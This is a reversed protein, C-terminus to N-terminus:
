LAAREERLQALKEREAGVVAEPAKAVFGRNALKKEARAIEGDLWARREDIRRSAAEHDIADSRLVAVSGGPVAVIATPDGGGASWDCRGLRAVHGATREYGAADLRAPLVASPAAGVRDRWGRLEQVAAIARAVEAEAEPDIRTEDAAPWHRAM